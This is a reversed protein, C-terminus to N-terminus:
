LLLMSLMKKVQGNDWSGDFGPLPLCTGDSTRFTGSGHRQHNVFEGEYSSGDPWQIVGKSKFFFEILAFGLPTNLRLM